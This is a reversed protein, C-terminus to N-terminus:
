RSHSPSGKFSDRSTLLSLVFPRYNWGVSVATTEAGGARGFSTCIEMTRREKLSARTFTSEFSEHRSM